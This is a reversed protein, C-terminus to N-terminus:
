LQRTIAAAIGVSLFKFGCNEFTDTLGKQLFLSGSVDMKKTLNAQAGLGM